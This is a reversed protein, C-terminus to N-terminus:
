AFEASERPPSPSGRETLDVEAALQAGTPSFFHQAIATPVIASLVVVSVLLSFQTKDRGLSAGHHRRDRPKPRLRRLYAADDGHEAGEQEGKAGTGNV